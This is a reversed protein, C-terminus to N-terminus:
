SAVRLSWDPTLHTVNGKHEVVANKPAQQHPNTTSFGVIGYVNSVKRFGEKSRGPESLEAFSGPFNSFDAIV